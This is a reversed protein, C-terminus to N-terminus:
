VQRRRRRRASFIPMAGALVLLVTGPEPTANYDLVLDETSAFNVAELTFNSATVSSNSADTFNSTSLAFAGSASGGNTLDQNPLYGTPLTISNQGAVQAIVWSYTQNSSTIAGAPAITFRSSSSLSSLNLGGAGSVNLLDWNAGETGAGVGPHAGLAGSNGTAPAAGGSGAATIKWLYSGGGNWSQNGTTLIGNHAADM